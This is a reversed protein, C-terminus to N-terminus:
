RPLGITDMVDSLLDASSQSIEVGACVVARGPGAALGRGLHEAQGCRLRAQRRRFRRRAGSGAQARDAPPHWRPRGPEM